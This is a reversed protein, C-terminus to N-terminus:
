NKGLCFLIFGVLLAGVLLVLVASMSDAPSDGAGSLRKFFENM